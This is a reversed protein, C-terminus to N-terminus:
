SPPCPPLVADGRRRGAVRGVEVVGGDGVRAAEAARVGEGVEVEPAIEALPVLVFQRQLILPHPVILEETRVEREGFLLIDIDIVRPGWRETPERGLEREIGKVARLLEEPELSVRAAVVMNLFAPQDAVGWPATECAASLRLLEVGPLLAIRMAALSLNRRRCGLNSGLGLYVTEPFPSM